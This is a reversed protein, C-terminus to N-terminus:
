GGQHPIVAFDKEGHNAMQMVYGESSEDVSQNREKSFLSFKKYV